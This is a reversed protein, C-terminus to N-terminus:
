CRPRLQYIIKEEARRTEVLTYGTCASVVRLIPSSVEEFILKSAPKHFALDFADERATFGGLVLPRTGRRFALTGRRPAWELLDDVELATPSAELYFSEQIAQTAIHRVRRECRYLTNGSTSASEPWPELRLRASASLLRLFRTGRAADGGLFIKASPSAGSLSLDTSGRAFMIIRGGQASVVRDGTMLAVPVGEFLFSECLETM